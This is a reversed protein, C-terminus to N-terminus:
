HDSFSIKQPFDDDFPHGLANVTGRRIQVGSCMGALLNLVEDQHVYICVKGGCLAVVTADANDIIFDFAQERLLRQNDAQHKFFFFYGFHLANLVDIEDWLKEAEVLLLGDDGMAIFHADASQQGGAERRPQTSEATFQVAVWRAGVFEAVRKLLQTLKGAGFAQPADTSWAVPVMLTDDEFEIWGGTSLTSEDPNLNVEDESM